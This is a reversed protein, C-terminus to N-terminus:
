FSHRRDLPLCEEGLIEINPSPTRCVTRARPRGHLGFRPHPLPTPLYDIYDKTEDECCCVFIISMM